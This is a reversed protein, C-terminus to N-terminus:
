REKRFALEPFPLFAETPAGTIPRLVTAIAKLTIALSSVAIRARATRRHGISRSRWRKISSDGQSVVSFGLPRLTKQLEWYNVGRDHDCRAAREPLLNSWWRTSHPMGPFAGNGSGCIILLGGRRILRAMETLLVHRDLRSPVYQLVSSCVIADFTEDPLPIKRTDAVHQFHVRHELGYARVRCRGSECNLEVPEVAYVSAVGAQAMAVALGGTGAGFELVSTGSLKCHDILFPIQNRHHHGVRELELQIFDSSPKCSGNSRHPRDCVGGGEALLRHFQDWAAPDVIQEQFTVQSLEQSWSV